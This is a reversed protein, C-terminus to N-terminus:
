CAYNTLVAPHDRLVADARARSLNWGPWPDDGPRRAALACSRLPEPLRSLAPVADPSLGALYHIDIKRTQEYRHVNATAVVADPGALGLILLGLGASGIVLRPMLETCRLRFCVALAVLVVVMWVEFAGANLRTVTWGSAAEYLWLRRMASAALLLTLVLLVAGISGMLRRHAAPGRAARSGAWALLALVILTVAILQGFGQRAREAHSHGGDAGFLVAAEVLLFTAITIAVLVLPTAWEAPHPAAPREGPDREGPDARPRKRDTSAAFIGGLVAGTALVFTLGQAPVHSLNISPWLAGLVSAFAADASALLGAVVLTCAVGIGAGKLWPRPVSHLGDVGIGPRAWPLARLM